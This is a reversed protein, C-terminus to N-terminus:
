PLAYDGFISAANVGDISFKGSSSAVSLCANHTAASLGFVPMSLDWSLDNGGTGTGNGVAVNGISAGAGNVFGGDVIVAVTMTSGQVSMSSAGVFYYNIASQSGSLTLTITSGALCPGLTSQTLNAGVPLTVSSHTSLNTSFSISGGTPPSITTAYVTNWALTASGLNQTNNTTPLFHGGTALCVESSKPGVCFADASSGTPNTGTLRAEVRALGTVFLLVATLVLGGALALCRQLYKTM